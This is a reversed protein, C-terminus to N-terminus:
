PVQAPERKSLHKDAFSKFAHLLVDRSIDKRCDHNGVYCACFNQPAVWAIKAGMCPDILNKPPISGGFVCFFPTGLAAAAPLMFCPGSVALDANGLLSLVEPLSLEGEDFRRAIHNLPPGEYWERGKVNFGVTIWYVDPRSDIVAQLYEHKPGRSTNVWEARVSVPHIVGYPRPLHKLWDPEWAPDPKLAFDMPGSLSFQQFLAAPATMGAQFHSVYYFGSIEPTGPPPSSWLRHSTRAVNERQTRYVLRALQVPRAKPIDWLLQPWPTRVYVIEYREALKKVVPRIYISDGLGEPSHVVVGNVPKPKEIRLEVKGDGTDVSAAGSEFCKLGSDPNLNVVRAKVFGRMSEFDQVYGRYVAADQMARAGYETHWNAQGNDAVKFDYGLLYIPDAGLLEALNLAAIGANTGRYIGHGLDRSWVQQYNVECPRLEVVGPYRGRAGPDESNLWVTPGRYAKWRPDVFLRRMTNLDYVFTITPNLFFAMNLGITLENKLLEPDIANLSPGGGLIFCRRGQWAGQHLGPSM